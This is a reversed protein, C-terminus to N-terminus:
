AALGFRLQNIAVIKSASRDKKRTTEAHWIQTGEGAQKEEMKKLNRSAGDRVEEGPPTEEGELTSQGEESSEVTGKPIRNVEMKKNRVPGELERIVLAM